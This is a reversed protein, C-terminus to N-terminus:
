GGNEICFYGPIVKFPMDLYCIIYILEYKIMRFPIFHSYTMFFVTFLWIKRQGLHHRLPRKFHGNSGWTASIRRKLHLLLDLLRYQIQKHDLPTTRVIDLDWSNLKLTWILDRIYPESTRLIGWPGNLHTIEEIKAEQIWWCNITSRKWWVWFAWLRIILDLLGLLQEKLGLNASM